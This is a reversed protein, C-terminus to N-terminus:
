WPKDIWGALWYSALGVYEHAAARLLRLQYPFNFSLGFSMKPRTMYDSAVPITKWKEHEFCLAARPLHFASTLLIWTEKKKPKILKTAYLANEHTTRSKEEFVIRRSSIGINKLLEKSIEKTKVKSAPFLPETTGVVVIKAKPYRQALRAVYIYRQASDGVVPIGRAESLMPNEDGTLLLIGDVKKPLKTTFKNELPLIAWEGVPLIACLLFLLAFVAVIRRAVRAAREQKSFSTVAALFLFLVCLNVPDLLMGVIKSFSFVM